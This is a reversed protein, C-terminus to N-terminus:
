STFEGAGVEDRTPTKGGIFEGARPAYQVKDADQTFIVLRSVAEMSTPEVVAGDPFRDFATGVEGARM